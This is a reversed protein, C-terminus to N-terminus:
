QRRAVLPLAQCNGGSATADVRAWLGEALKWWPLDDDGIARALPQASERHAMVAVILAAPDPGSRINVGAQLAAVTCPDEASLAALPNSGSAPAPQVLAYRDLAVRNAHPLLRAPLRSMAHYDYAAPPSPPGAPLIEGGPGRHLAITTYRGATLPQSQGVASIRAQGDLAHIVLGRSLQAQMWLAGALSIRLGNVAFILPSQDKAASLLIGSEPADACANDDMGSRFEFAQFPLWLPTPESQTEVIALDEAPASVVASSIWGQRLPRDYALLWQSDPSRAIAILNRKQPLQALVAAGQNPQARLNAGQAATVAVVGLSRNSQPAFFLAVNGLALMGAAQPEVSDAPYADFIARAVGWTQDEGSLNLWDIDAVAVTDGPEHLPAGDAAFDRYVPSVTPHGLCLAGTEQDACHTAINELAANQMAPCGLDQALASMAVLALFSLISLRKM